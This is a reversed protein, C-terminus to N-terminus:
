MVGVGGARGTHAVRIVTFSRYIKNKNWHKDRKTVLIFRTYIVILHSKLINREWLKKVEGIDYIYIYIDSIHTNSLFM